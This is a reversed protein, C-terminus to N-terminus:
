WEFLSKRGPSTFVPCVHLTRSRASSGRTAWFRKRKSLRASRRSSSVSNKKRSLRFPSLKPRLGSACLEVLRHIWATEIEFPQRPSSERLSGIRHGEHTGPRSQRTPWPPHTVSDSAQGLKRCAKHGAQHTTSESPRRFWQSRRPARCAPTTAAAMPMGSGLNYQGLRARRDIAVIAEFRRADHSSSVLAPLKPGTIQRFRQADDRSARQGLGRAVRGRGIAAKRRRRARVRADSRPLSNANINLPCSTGFLM